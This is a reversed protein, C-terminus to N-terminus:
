QETGDKQALEAVTKRLEALQAFMRPLRRINKRAEVETEMKVAPSGWVTRGDPVRSYINTGGAAIVDNGVTINDSVGVKGALVVRDGIVSSGAVGSQGCLLCDEGIRVNHGIHVLNDIKTGRGVQTARVTGRDVTANAGIEVDDAIEVTGLSHIRVWSQERIEERKGLSARIEEVGSQEPTVYSFGDAGIVANAHCTFRDGIVVGAGIRAGQYILADAGIHAGEAISVHSLVRAQPGIKVDRGIIVFPGIAAGDGLIASPDVIATPHIGPAIDPGPDFAKSLGAMALRPRTVFIAAKLGYAQADAGDWLIAARAQGKALGDAYKPDMALAIQDVRATSPESAGSVVISVDGVARAQLATAIMEVTVQAM